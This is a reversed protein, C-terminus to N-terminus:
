RGSSDCRHLSRGHGMGGVVRGNAPDEIRGAALPHGEVDDGEVLRGVGGLLRGRGDARVEPLDHLRQDEDDRAVISALLRDDAQHRAPVADVQGAQGGHGALLLDTAGRGALRVVQRAERDTADRRDPEVPGIRTIMSGPGRDSDSRTPRPRAGSRRRRPAAPSAACGTWRSPRGRDGLLPAGGVGRRDCRVPAHRARGARRRAASRGRGAGHGLRAVGRDGVGAAKTRAPAPAPAALGGRDERQALGAAREDVETRPDAVSGSARHRASSRRSPGRPAHVARKAEVIWSSGRPSYQSM